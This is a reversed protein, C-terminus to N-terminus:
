RADAESHAPRRAPALVSGCTPCAEPAPRSGAGPEAQRAREYAQELYADLLVSAEDEAGPMLHGYIDYTVQISSHGMFRQIAKPNVGAAIMLSAFTHRCDHLTVREVGHDKWAKDARRQLAQSTFPWGARDAFLLGSKVNECARILHPRLVSPIPTAREGARSKPDQLGEYQDFGHRVNIKWGALDVDERALARLEGLRLGSYFATAWIPRDPEPVLAILLAATEPAVIRDPKTTDSAPLELDEAPNIPILGRHKARRCIVRLPMVANRITSPAMGAAILRGIFEEVDNRTLDTLRAGGLTPYVWDSLAQDYGRITKPKYRRRSRNLITGARMGTILEDGAQRVTTPRPAAFVGRRLDVRADQRWDYAARRDRFSKKEWDGKRPNWVKARFSPECDCEEGQRSACTRKHRVEIGAEAM